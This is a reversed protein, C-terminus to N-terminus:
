LRRGLVIGALTAILVINLGRAKGSGGGFRSGIRPGGSSLADGAAKLESRVREVVPAAVARRRPEWTAAWGLLAAVALLVGGIIGAAGAAGFRPELLVGIAVLLAAQGLLALVGAVALFVAMRKLRRIRGGVNLTAAGLGAQLLFRWM